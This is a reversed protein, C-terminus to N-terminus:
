YSMDAPELTEGTRPRGEIHELMEDLTGLLIAWRRHRLRVDYALFPSCQMKRTNLDKHTKADPFLEPHEWAAFFWALQMGVSRGQAARAPNDVRTVTRNMRCLKGHGPCGCHLNLSSRAADWKFYGMEDPLQYSELVNGRGGWRRPPRPIPEPAPAAVIAAVDDVAEVSVPVIAAVDDVAEVPVPVEEVGAVATALPADEGEVPEGGEAGFLPAEEAAVDGAIWFAVEDAMDDPV